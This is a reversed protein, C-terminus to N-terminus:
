RGVARCAVWLLVLNLAPALAAIWPLAAEPAGDMWLNWPLGLPALFVGSLPDRPQDFLGYRGILLIGLAALYLGAFVRVIWKCYWRM